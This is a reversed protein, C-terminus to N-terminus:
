PLGTSHAAQLRKPDVSRPPHASRHKRFFLRLHKSGLPRATAKMRKEAFKGVDDKKEPDPSRSRLKLYSGTADKRRVLIWWIALIVIAVKAVIYISAKINRIEGLGAVGFQRAIDRM